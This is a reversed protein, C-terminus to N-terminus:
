SVLTLLGIYRDYVDMTLLGLADYVTLVIQNGGAAEAVRTFREFRTNIRNQKEM